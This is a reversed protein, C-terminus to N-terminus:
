VDDPRMVRLPGTRTEVFLSKINPSMKFQEVFYQQKKRDLKLKTVFDEFSIPPM